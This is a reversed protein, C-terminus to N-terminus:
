GQKDGYVQRITEGALIRAHRGARQPTQRAWLSDLAEHGATEWDQAELGRWMAPFKLVGHVGMQYAMSLIVARRDNSLGAFVKGKESKNLQIEIKSVEDLLLQKASEHTVTIAFQSPDMGQQKHLKTGFGITVYDESCLYPKTRFGEEYVLIDILNMTDTELQQAIQQVSKLVSHRGLDSNTSGSKQIGLSLGVDDWPQVQVVRANQGTSRLGSAHTTTCASLIVICLTALILYSNRRKGM